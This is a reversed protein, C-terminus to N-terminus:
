VEPLRGGRGRQRVKVPRRGRRWEPSRAHRDARTTQRGEEGRDHHRADEQQRRPAPVLAAGAPALFGRGGGGRVLPMIGMVLFRCPLLRPPFGGLGPRLLRAVASSGDAGCRSLRLFSIQEAEPVDLVEEIVLMVRLFVVFRILVVVLLERVRRAQEVLF